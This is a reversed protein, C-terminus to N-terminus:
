ASFKKLNLSNPKFLMVNAMWLTTSTMGLKKLGYRSLINNLTHVTDTLAKSLGSREFFNDWILYQYDSRPNKRM